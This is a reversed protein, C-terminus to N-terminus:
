SPVGKSVFVLSHIRLGDYLAAFSKAARPTIQSAPILVVHSANEWHRQQAYPSCQRARCSDHVEGDSAMWASEGRRLQRAM